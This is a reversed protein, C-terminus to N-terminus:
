RYPDRLARIVTHKKSIADDLYHFHFQDSCLDYLLYEAPHFGLFISGKGIVNKIICFAKLRCRLGLIM